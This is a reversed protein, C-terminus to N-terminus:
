VHHTTDLKSPRNALIAHIELAVTQRGLVEFTRNTEYGAASAAAQGDLCLALIDKLTQQAQEPSAQGTFTKHFRTAKDDAVKEREANAKEIAAPNFPQQPM